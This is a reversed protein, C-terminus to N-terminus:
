LIIACGYRPSLDTWKDLRPPLRGYLYDRYVFRLPADRTLARRIADKAELPRATYKYM